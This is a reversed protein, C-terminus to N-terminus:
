VWELLGRRWAYVLGLVLVAVFIGMEILGAVGLTRFVVVWPYVFVAEIDFIVFILALVYYGARFRIWPRGIPVEGCEYAANKLASPNHPGLLKAIAVMVIPLVTALVFFVLIALATVDSANM